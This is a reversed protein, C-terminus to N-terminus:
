SNSKGFHDYMERLVERINGDHKAYLGEARGRWAEAEAPGLLAGVIEELLAPSTECTLLTPLRGPRHTTVVLGGARRALRKLRQWALWTLADAGDLLVVDGPGLPPAGDGGPRPVVGHGLPPAGAKAGEASHRALREDASAEFSCDRTSPPDGGRINKWGAKRRGELPEVGLWHTAFGRAALRPQLDELMTTKGAGEPGVIAARWGLAELRAMLADWTVGQPRYRVRLVRDTSFPNDRARM